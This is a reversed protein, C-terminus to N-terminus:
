PTPAMDVPPSREEAPSVEGEAERLLESGRHLAEGTDERIEQTELNITSRDPGSSFTIWGVLALIAVLAALIILARM